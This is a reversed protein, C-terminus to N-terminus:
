SAPTTDILHARKVPAHDLIVVGREELMGCVESLHDEPMIVKLEREDRLVLHLRGILSNSRPVFQASLIDHYAVRQIPKAHKYRFAHIVEADAFIFVRTLYYVYLACFVVLVAKLLVYATLSGVGEWMLFPVSALTSVLVGLVLGRFLFMHSFSKSRYLVKPKM